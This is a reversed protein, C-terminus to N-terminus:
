ADAISLIGHIAGKRWWFLQELAERPVEQASSDHAGGQEWPPLSGGFAELAFTQMELLLRGAVHETAGNKSFKPHSELAFWKLVAPSGPPRSLHLSISGLYEQM